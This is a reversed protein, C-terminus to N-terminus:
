IVVECANGETWYNIKLARLPDVTRLYFNSWWTRSSWLCICM